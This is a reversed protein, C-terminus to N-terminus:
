LPLNEVANWQVKLEYGEPINVINEASYGLSLVGLVNTKIGLKRRIAKSGGISVKLSDMPCSGVGLAEAYFIMAALLYHASSETVPVRRDGVLIILAQTGKKVIHRNIRVDFEIKKKIMPLQPSFVQFFWTLPKFSFLLRYIRTVFRLSVQDILALLEPDDLVIVDINKNQNPAYKGVKVIQSIISRPIKEDKFVKISRRRSLLEYFDEPQLERNREAKQPTTGNVLIAQSPCIAACKRCLNCLSHDFVPYGDQDSICYGQYRKICVGCRKCKVLDVSIM